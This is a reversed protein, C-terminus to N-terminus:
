ASKLTQAPKLTLTCPRIRWRRRGSDFRNIFYQAKWPVKAVAFQDTSIGGRHVVPHTYGSRLLARAIACSQPNAPCGRTIDEATVRLKIKDPQVVRVEVEPETQVAKREVEVLKNSKM